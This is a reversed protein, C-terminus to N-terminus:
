IRRLYCAGDKGRIVRRPELIGHVLVEITAGAEHARFVAVPVRRASPKSGLNVTLHAIQGLDDCVRLDNSRGFPLEKSRKFASAFARQLSRRTETDM